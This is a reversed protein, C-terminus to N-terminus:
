RVRRIFTAGRPVREEDKASTSNKISTLSPVPSEAPPVDALYVCRRRFPMPAVRVAM